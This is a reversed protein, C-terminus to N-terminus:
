WVWKEGMNRTRPALVTNERAGTWFHKIKLGYKIDWLLWVNGLNDKSSYLKVSLQFFHFIIKFGKETSKVKAIASIEVQFNSLYSTFHSFNLELKLIIILQMM